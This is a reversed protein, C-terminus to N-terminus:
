GCHPQHRRPAGPHTTQLACVCHGGLSRNSKESTTSKTSLPMWEAIRGEQNLILVCIAGRSARQAGRPEARGRRELFRAHRM